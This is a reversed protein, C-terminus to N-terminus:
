HSHNACMQKQRHMGLDQESSGTARFINTILFEFLMHPSSAQEFQHPNLLSLAM